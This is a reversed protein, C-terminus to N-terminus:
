TQSKTVTAWWIGRDMQNGWCSYQLPHGNVVGPSRGSGLILSADGTDGIDGTSTPLKKKLWRAVNFIYM